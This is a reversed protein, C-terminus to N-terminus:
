NKERLDADATTNNKVMKEVKIIIKTGSPQNDEDFLDLIEAEIKQDFYKNYLKYLESMITLGMQTSTRNNLAAKRRGIGNDEITINLENSSNFVNITLIGHAASTFAHKIANEAYFQIIMKPVLTSRNVNPSINIKYDFGNKLRLKELTLYENCFDIEDELQRRLQNAALTLTRYISAFKRLIMIAQEKESVTISYIISNIANLIFHPDLQNRVMSLQLECIKKEIEFKKETKKKQLFQIFLIFTLFGLFILPYMVQKLYYKPNPSYCIQFHGNGTQLSIAPFDKRSHQFSILEEEGPYFELECEAPHTLGSRYVIMKKMEQSIIIIEDLGDQDVDRLLIKGTINERKVFNKNRDYVYIGNTHTNLIYMLEGKYFTLFAENADIALNCIYRIRGSLDFGCIQSKSNISESNSFIEMITDNEVHILPRIQSFKGGFEVPEFMFNLKQDLVMLWSSHDHYKRTKPDVNMPAYGYPIIEKRGDNNLDVQLLGTIFGLPEPSVTLSDNSINYSYVHRPSKSFGTSIAFILEKRGDGNLDDAEGHIIFPDSAKIGMGFRDIFRNRISLNVDNFNSICHLLISDNSISFLYIEKINDNDSDATIFLTTKLGFAFSGRVNWQDAIKGNKYINIGSSNFNDFAIIKESFGDNDLDDFYVYSNEPINKDNILELRYKGGPIKVFVFVIISPIAALIVTGAFSLFIKRINLITM